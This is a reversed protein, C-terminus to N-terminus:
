NGLKIPERAVHGEDRAQHGLADWEDDGFQSGIGVGEHQV